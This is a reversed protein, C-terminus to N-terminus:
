CEKESNKRMKTTVDKPYYVKNTFDCLVMRLFLFLAMGSLLFLLALIVNSSLYEELKKMISNAFFVNSTLAFVFLLANNKLSQLSAEEKKQQQLYEFDIRSQNRLAQTLLEDKDLYNDLEFKM